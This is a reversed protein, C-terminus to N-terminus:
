PPVSAFFLSFSECLIFHGQGISLLTLMMLEPMFTVISLLGSM